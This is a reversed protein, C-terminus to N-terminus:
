RPPPTAAGAAPSSDGSCPFATALALHALLVFPLQLEQPNARLFKLVVERSQGLTVDKGPCIFRKQELTKGHLEDYEVMARVYIACEIQGNAEPSTCKRLWHIGSNQDNDHARLTQSFILGVM